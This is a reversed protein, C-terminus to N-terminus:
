IYMAYTEVQIKMLARSSDIRLMHLTLPIYRQSKDIKNWTQVSFPSIRIAQLRNFICITYLIKNLIYIYIYIYIYVYIYIYIYTYTYIHINIYIYTYIYIYIYTHINM